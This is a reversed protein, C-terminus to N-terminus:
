LGTHYAALTTMGFRPMAVGRSGHQEAAAEGYVDM